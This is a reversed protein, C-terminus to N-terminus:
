EGGRAEVWEGFAEATAAVEDALFSPLDARETLAAHGQLNSALFEAEDPVPGEFSKAIGVVRDPVDFGQVRAAYTEAVTELPNTGAYESLDEVAESETSDFTYSNTRSWWKDVDIDDRGILSSFHRAHGLEHVFMHRDVDDPDAALFDNEAARVWGAADDASGDDVKGFVDPDLRLERQKTAPTYSFAGGSDGPTSTARVNMKPYRGRGGLGDLEGNADLDALLRAILEAQEADFERLDATVSADSATVADEYRSVKEDPAADSERIDDIAEHLGTREVGGGGSPLAPVEGTAAPAQGSRIPVWTCRCNPHVPIRGRAEKLTYTSGALGACIPCVRTDGATVHEALTTVGDIRGQVDEYRNLAAENHARITETRAILRGRHLGVNDVRDNLRRAIKRPNEGAMFGEALERTMDQAMAETVGDLERFARTFLMGVGDAHKPARFVSDLTEAEAIIGEGVMAADAHQVGRRYADRLYLNQWPEAASTGRREFTGRELIGRDVQEDVWSLFEDIKREDSPFAYAGPEPPEINIDADQLAAYDQSDGRDAQGVGSNVGTEPAARGPGTSTRGGSIGFVDREVVAERIAGKLARFRRYMEASYNSRVTKTATPDDSSHPWPSSRNAAVSRGSAAGHQCGDGLGDSTGSVLLAGDPRVGM